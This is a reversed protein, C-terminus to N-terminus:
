REEAVKKGKIDSSPAPFKGLVTAV